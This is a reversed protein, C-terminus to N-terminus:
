PDISPGLVHIIIWAERERTSRRCRSRCRDAGESGFCAVRSRGSCWRVPVLKVFGKDWPGHFHLWKKIVGDGMGWKRLLSKLQPCCEKHVRAKPFLMCTKEIM